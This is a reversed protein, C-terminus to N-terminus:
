WLYKLVWLLELKIRGMRDFVIVIFFRSDEEFVKTFQHVLRRTREASTVRESRPILKRNGMVRPSQTM